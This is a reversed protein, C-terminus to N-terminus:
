SQRMAIDDLHKVDTLVVIAIGKEHHWEELALCERIEEAASKSEISWYSRLDPTINSSREGCRVGGVDNV